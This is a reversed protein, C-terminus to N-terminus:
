ASRRNDKNLPSNYFQEWEDDTLSLAGGHYFAGVPGALGSTGPASTSARARFREAAAALVPGPVEVTEDLGLGDRELHDRLDAGPRDHAAAIIETRDRGIGVGELQIRRRVACSLGADDRDAAIYVRGRFHRLKSAQLPTSSGAGGHHSIAPWGAAEVADADTEGECWILETSRGGKGRLLDWTDDDPIYLCRDTLTHAPMEPISRRPNTPHDPHPTAYWIRRTGDEEYARRQWFAIMNPVDFFAFNRWPGRM